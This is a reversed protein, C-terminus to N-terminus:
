TIFKMYLLIYVFIYMIYLYVYLNIYIDHVDTYSSYMVNLQHAGNLLMKRSITYIKLSRLRQQSPTGCNQVM